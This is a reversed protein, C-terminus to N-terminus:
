DDVVIEAQAFYQDILKLNVLLEANVLCGATALCEVTYFRSM